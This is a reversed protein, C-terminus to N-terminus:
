SDIKSHTYFLVAKQYAHFYMLFITHRLYDQEQRSLLNKKGESQCDSEAFNNPKIANQLGKNLIIYSVQQDKKKKLIPQHMVYKVM